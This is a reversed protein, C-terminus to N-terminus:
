YLFVAVLYSGTYTLPLSRGKVSEFGEWFSSMEHGIIVVNTLTNVLDNQIHGFEKSFKDPHWQEMSLCKDLGSVMVPQGRRWQQQFIKFNHKNKSDLLRLLKGECLWSHAVDPFMLSTETLTHVPIPTERGSGNSCGNKPVYHVLKMPPSNTLPLASLEDDKPLNKEVVSQIIEDLTSSITKSKSKKNNEGHSAKELKQKKDSSPKIKGAQKTLLERLTSCNAPNARDPDYEISGPSLPPEKYKGIPSISTLPQSQTTMSLAKTDQFAYEAALKDKVKRMARKHDAKHDSRSKVSDMSAVDALLSLPSPANESFTSDKVYNGLNGNVNPSSNMKKAHEDAMGNVLPKKEAVENVCNSM